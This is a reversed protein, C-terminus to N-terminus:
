SIMVIYIINYRRIYIGTSWSSVRNAMITNTDRCSSVFLRCTIVEFNLDSGLASNHRTQLLWRLHGTWCMVSYFCMFETDGNDKCGM